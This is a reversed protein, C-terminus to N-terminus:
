PTEWPRGKHDRATKLRGDEGRVADRLHRPVFEPKPAPPKSSTGEERPRVVEFKSGTEQKKKLLYEARKPRPAVKRVEVKSPAPPQNTKAWAKAERKKKEALEKREQARQKRFYEEIRRDSEKRKSM